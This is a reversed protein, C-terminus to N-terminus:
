PHRAQLFRLADLYDPICECDYKAIESRRAVECLDKDRTAFAKTEGVTLSSLHEAISALVLSDLLGLGARSDIVMADLLLRESLVLVEAVVSIEQILDRLRKVHDRHLKRISDGVSQLSNSLSARADSRLLDQRLSSLQTVLLEREKEKKEIAWFPEILSVAPVALRIENGRAKDLIGLAARVQEQGLVVELVFNSEVYVIM